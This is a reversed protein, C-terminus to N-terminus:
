NLVGRESCDFCIDSDDKLLSTYGLERIAEVEWQNGQEFQPIYSPCEKNICIFTLTLQQPSPTGWPLNGGHWDKLENM